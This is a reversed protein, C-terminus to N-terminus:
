IVSLARRNSYSVIRGVQHCNDPVSDHLYKPPPMRRSLGEPDFLVCACSVGWGMCGIVSFQGLEMYLINVNTQSMIM